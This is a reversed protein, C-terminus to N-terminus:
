YNEANVIMLIRMQELTIQPKLRAVVFIGPDRARQRFREEILGLPTIVEGGIGFRFGAPTIGIITCGVRNLILQKGIVSEDAGFVRRWFDYSLIVVPSSGPRDDEPSFGRGRIPNVGLTPLFDSSVTMSALREAEPLGTLNFTDFRFAATSEFVQNQNKWDVYNPYTVPLQEQSTQESIMVLRDSDKYPLSRILISNVVSFVAVSAGIGLALTLVAILTFLPNKVLVRAGYRLDQWVTELRRGGRVDYGQEKIRTLNGFSREADRRAEDPSMGRRINEEVRMDIHFQLEDTIERHITESRWLGRVRRLFNKLWM